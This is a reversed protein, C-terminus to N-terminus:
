SREDKEKKERYVMLWALFNGVSALSAATMIWTFLADYGVVAGYWLFLAAFGLSSWAFALIVARNLRKM